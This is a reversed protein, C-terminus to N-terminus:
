DVEYVEILGNGTTNAFGGLSVTYAGPELRVYIASERFDTPPIGTAVIKPANIIDDQWNDNTIRFPNVGESTEALTLVPNELPTPVGSGALSPGIGRILVTKATPRIIFGAIMVNDGFGVFGRTSINVMHTGAKTKTIFFKEFGVGRSPISSEGFISSNTRSQFSGTVKIGASEDYEFSQESLLKGKGGGDFIEEVNYYLYMDGDASIFCTVETTDLDATTISGLYSGRLHAYPGFDNARELNFIEGSPSVTIFLRIPDYFDDIRGSLTSNNSSFDVSGDEAVAGDTYFDKQGTVSSLALIQMNSNDEVWAAVERGLTSRGTYLGTFSMESSLPTLLLLTFSFIHFIIKM